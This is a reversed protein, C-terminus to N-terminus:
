TTVTALKSTRCLLYGYCSNYQLVPPFALKLCPDIAHMYVVKEDIEVSNHIAFPSRYEYYEISYWGKHHQCLMRYNNYNNM